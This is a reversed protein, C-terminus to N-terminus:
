LAPPALTYPLPPLARARPAFLGLGVFGGHGRRAAAEELPVAGAGHRRGDQYYACDIIMEPVGKDAVPCVDAVWCPRIGRSDYLDRPPPSGLPQLPHHRRFAQPWDTTVEHIRDPFAAPNM